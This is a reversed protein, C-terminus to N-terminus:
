KKFMKYWIKMGALVSLIIFVWWYPLIQASFYAGVPLAFLFIATKLFQIDVLDFRKIKSDAWTKFGM